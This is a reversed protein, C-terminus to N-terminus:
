KQQCDELNIKLFGNLHFISFKIRNEHYRTEEIRSIGLQYKKTVRLIM